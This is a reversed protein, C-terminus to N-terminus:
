EIMGSCSIMWCGAGVMPARGSSKNCKALTVAIQLVIRINEHRGGDFVQESQKIELLEFDVEKAPERRLGTPLPDEAALHYSLCQDGCAPREVDLSPRRMRQMRIKQQHAIGLYRDDVLHVADAVAPTEGRALDDGDLVTLGNEGHGHREVGALGAHRMLNHHGIHRLRLIQWALGVELSSDQRM